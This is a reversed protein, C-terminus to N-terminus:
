HIFLLSLYSVIKGYTEATFVFNQAHTSLAEYKTSDEEKDLIEQFKTSWYFKDVSPGDDVANLIVHYLSKTNSSNGTPDLPVYGFLKDVRELQQLLARKLKM